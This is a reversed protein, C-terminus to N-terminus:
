SYITEKLTVTVKLWDEAKPYSLREKGEMEQKCFAATSSLFNLCM